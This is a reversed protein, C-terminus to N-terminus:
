LSFGTDFCLPNVALIFKGVAEWSINLAAQSDRSTFNILVQNSSSEFERVTRSSDIRITEDFVQWDVDRNAFLHRSSIASFGALLCRLWVKRHSSTNGDYITLVSSYLRAYMPVAVRIILLQLYCFNHLILVYCKWLEVRKRVTNPPGVLLWSCKINSSADYVIFDNSGGTPFPISGSSGSHVQM